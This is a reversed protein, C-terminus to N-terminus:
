KSPDVRGGGRTIQQLAQQDRERRTESTEAQDKRVRKPVYSGTETVYVYEIPKGNEDLEAQKQKPTTNCGGLALAAPIVLCLSIRVPSKM